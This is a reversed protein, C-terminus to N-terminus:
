GKVDQPGSKAGGPSDVMYACRFGVNSAASDATFMMRSSCRFRNCTSPNCLFSGGKKVMTNAEIPPARADKRQWATSTWEWVNGVMNYLGLANQPGYADVPATGPFGDEATNNSSYYDRILATSRDGFSHLSVTQMGKRLKTDLESQWINM